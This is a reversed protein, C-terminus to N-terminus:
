GNDSEVNHLKVGEILLGHGELVTRGSTLELRYQKGRGKKGITVLITKDWNPSDWAHRNLYSFVAHLDWEGLEPPTEERRVLTWNLMTGISLGITPIVVEGVVGSMRTFYFGSM